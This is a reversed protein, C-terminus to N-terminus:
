NAGQVLQLNARRSLRAITDDVHDAPVGPGCERHLWAWEIDSLARGFQEAARLGVATASVTAVTAVVGAPAAIETGRKPLTTPTAVEALYTHADLGAARGFTPREHKDRAKEIEAADLGPRAAADAATQNHDIQTATVGRYEGWTVARDSFGFEDYNALPEVRYVLPEGDYRAVTIRIACDGFVLPKVSVHDGVNIGALGDVPYSRTREAAPHKYTIRLQVSVKREETKGAMMAQCVGVAPLLRLQAATVKLWLDTRAVTLPGRRLRTDQGPLANANYARSWHAAAANLQAIDHVPELALRGEFQTEVINQGGEVGGKVRSQGRKHTEHQVELAECLALIPASTNATGLDILLLRPVGHQPRGEAVGWAYMLFQFLTLSNEGAAEFYRVVISASAHDYLVYRWVKLKVKAYNDIKNKYFKDAEMVQQRGNLYYLVCLSPDVQHVHNPHESAMERAPAATALQRASLHRERMLRALHGTSVTVALNNQHAISVAVTTPLVLKGNKRTGERQMGAVTKLVEISQRTRGKDARAKRGSSWGVQQELERYLRQPKWGLAACAQAVLPGREGHGAAQLNRALAALTDRLANPPTLTAPM